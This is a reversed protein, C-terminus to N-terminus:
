VLNRVMADEVKLGKRFSDMYRSFGKVDEAHPQLEHSPLGSFVRDALWDGLSEPDQKGAMYAALLGIGWAGGEGATALVSVATGLAAATFRQGADGAKYLGGHAMVRDIRVREEKLAEMGIHLTALTSFLVSRALNEFSLRGGPLQALFPRGETFGTIHEGSYYGCTLVGGADEEGRLAARNVAQFLADPDPEQGLCRLFGALMGVWANLDTTCNNCHVMAVPLGEPTAVIDIGGHPRSLAKELVIMAFISTGASINGTRPAVANTAVMGTGADGEPPCLPVGPQLEGDPDLLLAGAQTLTGAVQGAPLCEPLLDLLSRHFGHVRARQDFRAARERDYGGEGSLPFMGSADGIGLARRGTLQWHIYGALTTLFSIRPVHEERNLIAQYLHAVSWRQPIAFGLLGSLEEAAQGTITNRWTRFPTLLRGEQDFALYGHMMGSVGMARLARIPLGYQQRVDQALAQYAARLGALADELSYTWVGDELRNEWQHSGSAIVSHGPNLLVAKIRTSGLEIGLVAQGERIVERNSVGQVM